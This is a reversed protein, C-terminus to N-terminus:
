CHPPRSPVSSRLKQVSLVAAMNGMGTSRFIGAHELGAGGLPVLSGLRGKLEESLVSSGHRTAGGTGRDLSCGFPAFPCVQTDWPSSLFAPACGSIAAGHHQRRPEATGLWTRPCLQAARIAPIPRGTGLDSSDHGQRPSTKPAGLFPLVSQEPRLKKM